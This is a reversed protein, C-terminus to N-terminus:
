YNCAHKTLATLALRGAFHVGRSRWSLKVLDQPLSRQSAARRARVALALVLTHLSHHVQLRFDLRMAKEKEKSQKKGGRM